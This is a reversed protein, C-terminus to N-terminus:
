CEILAKTHPREPVVRLCGAFKSYIMRNGTRVPPKIETAGVGAYAEGAERVPLFEAAAYLPSRQIETDFGGGNGLGSLGQIL